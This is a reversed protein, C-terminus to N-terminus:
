KVLAKKEKGWFEDIEIKVLEVISLLRETFDFDKKAIHKMLKKMVDIKEDVDDVVYAKGNAIVSAFYYTYQCPLKAEVLQHKCDIEVSINNNKAIVDLKKGKKACHFYFCLKGDEYTYGYNMPLVYPKDGDVMAIRMVDNQDILSIIENVDTIERDKRIM